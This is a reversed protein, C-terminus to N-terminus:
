NGTRKKRSISDYWNLKERDRQMFVRPLLRDILPATIALAQQSLYKLQTRTSQTTRETALKDFPVIAWQNGVSNLPRTKKEKSNDVVAKKTTIEAKKAKESVDDHCEPKRLSQTYEEVEGQHLGSLM